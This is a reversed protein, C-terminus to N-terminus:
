HIQHNKTFEHLAKWWGQKVFSTFKTHSNDAWIHLSDILGDQYYDYLLNLYWTFTEQSLSARYLGYPRAWGETYQPCISPIVMTDPNLRKIEMLKSLIFGKQKERGKKNSLDFMPYAVPMVYDVVSLM